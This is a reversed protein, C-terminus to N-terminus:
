ELFMGPIELGGSLSSLLKQQPEASESFLSRLQERDGAEAARTIRRAVDLLEEFYVLVAEHDGRLENPPELAAVEQHIEALIREVDPQIAGLYRFLDDDQFLELAGTAIRPDIETRARLWVGYLEQGYEGHPISAGRLCVVGDGHFDGATARCFSESWAPLREGIALQSRVSVLVLRPFDRRELAEDLDNMLAVEDRLVALWSRHDERFRGPPDVREGRELARESAERFNVEGALQFVRDPSPYSQQITEDFERRAEARIGEAAAVEDLYSREESTLEAGEGGASSCAAGILATM